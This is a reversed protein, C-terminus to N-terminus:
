NLIILVLSVLIKLKSVIYPFIPKVDQAIFGIDKKDNLKLRYTVPKLLDIKDNINDEM